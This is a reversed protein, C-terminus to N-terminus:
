RLHPTLSGRAVPLSVRACRTAALAEKLAIVRDVNVTGCRGADCAAGRVALLDPVLRAAATFDDNRLSGALVIAMGSLRTKALFRRLDDTPWIDILSGASKNWTDILLAACPLETAADLIQVPDPAAATRWDAYVVAVSRPRKTAPAATRRPESFDLRAASSNDASQGARSAPGVVARWDTRWDALGACGALGLKFLEVGDPIEPLEARGNASLLDILEGLAATVPVRGRVAAVVERITTADAPGLPGRDPEKVDIVDAGGELAALAEEANRVSVLLGPVDVALGNKIM